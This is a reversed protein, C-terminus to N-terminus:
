FNPRGNPYYQTLINKMAVQVQAGQQAGYLALWTFYWGEGYDPSPGATIVTKALFTKAHATFAANDMPIQSQYRVLRDYILASPKLGAGAIASALKTKDVPQVGWFHILPTLDAGAAKSMRYIRSDVATLGDSAVASGFDLNEQKYFGSLKDWGFLAAIEIYKAWGRHQYRVEDKTTNSIDMAKGDRFNPTVMWNIAAQDRNIQTQNLFSKGFALDIDVGYKRNSIAAALLNVAAEGEGPFNSFLQAHGLEHFETPWFDSGATLYWIKKNGDAANAEDAPNYANNIAPYGIGFGSFMIDTDAQIYLIVNNRVLPQGILESVADLRMDWDQMLEVPNAYAYIFNTPVQMMFKDSEFDAWPAPNNRQIAIWDALSTKNHATASFFPAPVANKIQVDVVGADALYPVNVYIGGGFPNAIEVTTSAIAFQNSIRFFRKVPSSGTKDQKHAGVQLTYGKNVMSQPVTVVAVDGPALYYGTPRLAATSSFATPKGVFKPMSANVKATYSRTADAALKVKGPYFDSTAFKKSLLVNRYKAFNAANYAQDFIGQQLSFVARTLEAGDAAGPTNAFGGKTTAGIFFAGYTKDYLDVVSLAESLTTQNGVLTYMTTSLISTQEIIHAPTLQATGNLHQKIKGLAAVFQPADAGEVVPKCFVSKSTGFIPDSGFTATDIKVKGTQSFLYVFANKAGYALHTKVALDITDGENGCQSFGALGFQSTATQTVDNTTTALSDTNSSSGAVGASGGCSVLQSSVWLVVLTKFLNKTGRHQATRNMATKWLALVCM